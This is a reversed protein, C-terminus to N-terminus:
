KNTQTKKKKEGTTDLQSNMTKISIKLETITKGKWTGVNLTGKKKKLQCGTTTNNM